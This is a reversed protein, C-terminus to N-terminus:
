YSVFIMQKESKQYKCYKLWIKPLVFANRFVKKLLISLILLEVSVSFRMLILLRKKFVLVRIEDFYGRLFGYMEKASRKKMDLVREWSFCIIPNSLALEARDIGVLWWNRSNWLQPHNKM